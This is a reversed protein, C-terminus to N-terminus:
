TKPIEPLHAWHTVKPWGACCTTLDGVPDIWDIDDFTDDNDSLYVPEYYGIGINKGDSLLVTESFMGCDDLPPLQDNVSIWNVM